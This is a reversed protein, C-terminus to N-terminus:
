DEPHGGDTVHRQAHTRATAAPPTETLQTHAPAHSAASQARRGGMVTRSAGPYGSFVFIVDPRHESSETSSIFFPIAQSRLWRHIVERRVMSCVHRTREGQGDTRAGCTSPAESERGLLLNIQEQLSKRPNNADGSTVSQVEENVSIVQEKTDASSHSSQLFAPWGNYASTPASVDVYLVQLSILDAADLMDTKKLEERRICGQEDLARAPLESGSRPRVCVKTLVLTSSFSSGGRVTQAPMQLWSSPVSLPQSTWGRLDYEHTREPEGNSSGFRSQPNESSRALTRDFDDRSQITTLGPDPHHPAPSDFDARGLHHIKLEVADKDKRAKTASILGDRRNGISIPALPEENENVSMRLSGAEVITGAPHGQDNKHNEPLLEVAEIELSNKYGAGDHSGRSLILMQPTSSSFSGLLPAHALTRYTDNTRYLAVDRRTPKNTSRAYARGKRASYGVFTLPHSDQPLVGYYQADWNFEEWTYQNSTSYPPEIWIPQVGTFYYDNKTYHLFGERDGRRALVPTSNIRGNLSHILMTDTLPRSVTGDLRIARRIAKTSGNKSLLSVLSLQSDQGQEQPERIVRSIVFDDADRPLPDFEFYTSSPGAQFASSGGLRVGLLVRRANDQCEGIINMPDNSKEDLKYIQQCIRFSHEQLLFDCDKQDYGYTAAGHRYCMDHFACAQRFQLGVPSDDSGISQFFPLLPAPISCSVGEGKGGLISQVSASGPFFSTVPPYENRSPSELDSYLSNSVLGGVHSCGGAGLAAVSALAVMSLSTLIKQSKM